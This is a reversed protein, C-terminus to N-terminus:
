IKIIGVSSMFVVAILIPAVYKILVNAWLNGWAFEITGDNTAEQLANKSGWVWAVFIATLMGSIPLLVNGSIFDLLDFINRDLVIFGSWIGNSLSCAIGVVFILGGMTITAKKREWGHEEMMYAVVPELLSISSTLAALFLLFFFAGGFLNGAPMENFVAPLTIFALGGGSGPEFGYAFVAPFIVLGALFAILTDMMPVITCVFPINEDQSLYSGYTLISGMGLSLSFFVQGLAALLTEGDIKSLDPKLYFELGAGAGPLTLSRIALIIIIVFLAPMMINSYKEIGDQIGKYVIYITTAMFIATYILPLIANSIFGVFLDTSAGPDPFAFGAIAKFFYYITWGGVVGYFSLIMFGAIIGILGVPAWSPKIAKFAGVNSQRTHRGLAVESIFCVVGIIVVIALYVVLFAAGGYVGVLYPFRWINGLGIASGAAAFIFGLRSGFTERSEGGM